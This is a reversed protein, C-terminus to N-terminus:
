RVCHDVGKWPHKQVTGVLARSLAEDAVAIVSPEAPPNLRAFNGPANAELWREFRMWSEEVPAFTM